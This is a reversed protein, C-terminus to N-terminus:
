FWGKVANYGNNLGVGLNTNWFGQGGGQQQAANYVSNMNNQYTDATDVGAFGGSSQLGTNYANNVQSQNLGSFPGASNFAGLQGAIGLGTVGAGLLQQGTSLGPASSKTSYGVMGNISNAVNLRNNLQDWANQQAGNANQWDYMNQQNSQAQYQNGVNLLNQTALSNLQLGQQGLAANTGGINNGAGIISQAIRSRMADNNLALNSLSNKQNLTNFAGVSAGTRQAARRASPDDGLTGKISSNLGQANVNSLLGGQRNLQNVTNQIDQGTTQNGILGQYQSAANQMQDLGQQTRGMLTNAVQNIQGSDALRNLAEIQTPNMQALQKSIFDTDMNGSRAVIDKLIKEVNANPAVTTKTSGGKSFLSM